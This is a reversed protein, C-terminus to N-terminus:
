VCRSTYLLCAQRMANSNARQSDSTFLEPFLAGYNANILSDLTGTLIYMLAGKLPSSIKETKREKRDIKDSENKDFKEIKGIKDEQRKYM